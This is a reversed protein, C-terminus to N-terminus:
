NRKAKPQDIRVERFEPPGKTLRRRRETREEPSAAPDAIKEIADKALEKARKRRGPKAVHNPPLGGISKAALEAARAAAEKATSLVQPKQTQESKSLGLAM